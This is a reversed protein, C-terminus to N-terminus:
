IQQHILNLPHQFNSKFHAKILDLYLDSFDRVKQETYYNNSNHFEPEINKFGYPWDWM